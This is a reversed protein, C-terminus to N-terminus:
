SHRVVKFYSTINLIQETLSNVAMIEDIKDEECDLVIADHITGILDVGTDPLTELLQEYIICAYDAATSQVYYNVPANISNIRRGYANEFFNGQQYENVIKNEFERVGLFKKIKNIDKVTLSTM